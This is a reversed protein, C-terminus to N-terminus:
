IWIIPTPILTTTRFILFQVEESSGESYCKGNEHEGGCFDCRLSQEQSLNAKGLSNEVLKKNLLEIQTLLITHIDVALMGKPTVM